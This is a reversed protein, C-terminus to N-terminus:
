RSITEIALRVQVSPFPELAVPLQLV